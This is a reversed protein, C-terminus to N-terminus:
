NRAPVNWELKILEGKSNYDLRKLQGDKGNPDFITQNNAVKKGM